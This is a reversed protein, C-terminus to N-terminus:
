LAPWWTSRGISRRDVKVWMWIGRLGELAGM